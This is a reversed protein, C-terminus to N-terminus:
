SNMIAKKVEILLDPSLEEFIKECNKWTIFERGYVRLFKMVSERLRSCTGYRDVIKLIDTVNNTNLNKVMAGECMIRLTEIQYKDALVLLDVASKEIDKIKGAYIFRLVEAMTEADVDTIEVINEKNELMDHEFMASFVPSRASLINKHAPFKKEGVVITVDIKSLAAAANMILVASDPESNTANYFTIEFKLTLNGDVLCDEVVHNSPLYFNYTSLGCNYLTIVPSAIDEIFNECAINFNKIVWTYTFKNVDISTEGYSKFISDQFKGSVKTKTLETLLAPSLAEFIKDFNKLDAVKKRNATLFKLLAGRLRSCSAYLDVIKLIEVVNDINLKKVLVEECMLRLAELQYKDAAILLDVALEKINNVKDAYIFRLVEAMVEPEVDSIAVVNKRKELMEHEFMGSFVPSRCALINRHAPFKEDGVVITIDSFKASSLLEEYEDLISIKCNSLPSVAANLIAYDDVVLFVHDRFSIQVQVTLSGNSLCNDTVKRHHIDHSLCAKGQAIYITHEQPDYEGGKNKVIWLRIHAMAQNDTPCSLTEISTSLHLTDAIWQRPVIKIQFEYKDGRNYLTILPSGISKVVQDYHHFITKYNEIVWTYMNTHHLNGSFNSEM